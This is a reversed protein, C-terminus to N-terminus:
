VAGGHGGVRTGDDGAEGGRRGAEQMDTARAGRQEVPQERAMVAAGEPQAHLVGVALARGFRRDARDELAQAPEAKPPVAFRDFLKRIGVAVGLDGM